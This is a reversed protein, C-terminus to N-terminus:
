LNWLYSIKLVMVRNELGVTVKETRWNENYALFLHSKPSHEWGFLFSVLYDRLNEIKGYNRREKGIQGFIRLFLDRRFLYTLRLSSAFFRGDIRNYLTLSQAYNSNIEITCNSRPRLTIGLAMQCQRGVGQQAFNYFGGLSLDVEGSIPLAGNTELSFGYNNAIFVDTLEVKRGRHYFLGVSDWISESFDIGTKLGVDWTVLNQRFDQSVMLEPYEM